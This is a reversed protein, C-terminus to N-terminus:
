PILGLVHIRNGYVCFSHIARRASVWAMADFVSGGTCLQSSHMPTPLVGQLITYATM